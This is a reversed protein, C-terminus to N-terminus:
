PVIGSILSCLGRKRSKTWVLKFSNWRAESFVYSTNIRILLIIYPINKDHKVDNTRNPHKTHETKCFFLGFLVINLILKNYWWKKIVEIEWHHNDIEFYRNCGSVTITIISLAGWRLKSGNNVHFERCKQDLLITDERSNFSIPSANAASLSVRRSVSM